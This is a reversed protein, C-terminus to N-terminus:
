GSPPDWVWWGRSLTQEAWPVWLPMEEHGGPLSRVWARSVRSPLTQKLPPALVLHGPDWHSEVMPLFGVPGRPAVRPNWPLLGLGLTPLPQAQPWSSGARCM